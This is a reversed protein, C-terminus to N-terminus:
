RVPQLDRFVIGGDGDVPSRHDNEGNWIADPIRVPFAACTRGPHNWHACFLCAAPIPREEGDLTEAM